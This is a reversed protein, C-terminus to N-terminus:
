KVKDFILNGIAYDEDRGITEIELWGIEYKSEFGMFVCKDTLNSQSGILRGTPTYLKIRLTEPTNLRAAFFGVRHVGADVDPEDPQHFRITMPGKFRKSYTGIAEFCCISHTFQADPPFKFAYGSIGIYCNKGQKSIGPNSWGTGPSMEDIQTPALEGVPDLVEGSETKIRPQTLPAASSKMKELRDPTGYSFSVGLSQYADDIKMNRTTAVGNSSSFVIVQLGDYWFASKSETYVLDPVKGLNRAYFAAPIFLLFLMWLRYRFVFGRKKQTGPELTESM